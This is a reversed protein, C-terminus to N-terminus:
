TTVSWGAAALNPRLISRIPTSTPPVNVSMKTYSSALPSIREAFTSVVGPVVNVAQDLTKRDFIEIQERTVLAGGVGPQGEQLSGVVVIEGMDFVYDRDPAPRAPATTRGRPDPDPSSPAPTADPPQASVPRSVACVLTALCWVALIRARAM